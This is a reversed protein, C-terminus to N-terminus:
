PAITLMVVSMPPLTVDLHQEQLQYSTFAEKKVREPQDFTNHAQMDDSALVVGNIEKVEELGRLELSLNASEGPHVNCLSIHIFGDQAKSASVSVQPISDGDYEYNGVKAHIALAQADQHVKFMEFVHYTPTLLMAPGETLVMAQLVNVMQAINTMQVRDHHNHFIHLHLGAVLADRMTNQQYLFGPNTGPETLFWTGWEDVILGVRKDPDYQDMIASHRTILEDMHLSKKMTEFWEAEDFGVAHRKGEWSGPITYNHLSLGDMLHGAERMLVETWRYDDVNAGGAIRYIRNEGYNRVYTQYCRYLDAYYEPRMNGGCGWNENGVGFYKLKWPKERGNEQRWAAMPSEGDFTMYEVWESMEQVTGSGVNGCIYPEANLLECLQFFEHTGFHNNEVVGGWHTNVMRKRNEKPGIGDKWHYEDAFCGGPWRLVPINLQKLAEVVDNRIGDTHPIPSDQGVWLGEYICRGLHEAFQGYINKNIIGQEWDTNVIVSGKM